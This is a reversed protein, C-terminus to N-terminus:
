RDKREWREGPGMRGEGRRRIGRSRQSKKREGGKKTDKMRSKKGRDGSLMFFVLFISFIDKYAM